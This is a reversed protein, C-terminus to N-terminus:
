RFPPAQYQVPAPQQPPMKQKVSWVLIVISFVFSFLAHIFAMRLLSVYDIAREVLLFGVLTINPMSFSIEFVSLALLLPKKYKASQILTFIGYFVSWVSFLVTWERGWDMELVLFVAFSVAMMMMISLVTLAIIGPARKRMVTFPQYQPAPAQEALRFVGGCAACLAMGTSQNINAAPIEAGCGPCREPPQEAQPIQTQPASVAAVATGCKPCFATGENLQNGCKACFM